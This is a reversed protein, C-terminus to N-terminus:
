RQGSHEFQQQNGQSQRNQQQQGSQGQGSQGGYQGSGYEGGSTPQGSLQAIKVTNWQGPIPSVGYQEASQAGIPRLSTLSNGHRCEVVFAGGQPSTAIFKGQEGILVQVLDVGQASEGVQM